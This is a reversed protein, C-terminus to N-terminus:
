QKILKKSFTNKSTRVTILYVGLTLSKLDMNQNVRKQQVGLSRKSLEKGRLDSIAVEIMEEEEEL